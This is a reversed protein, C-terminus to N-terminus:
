RGRSTVTLITRGAMYGNDTRKACAYVSEDKIKVNYITLKGDKTLSTRGVFDGLITKWM